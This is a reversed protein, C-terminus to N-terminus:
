EDDDDDDDGDDDEIYDDDVNDLIAKINEAFPDELIEEIQEVCL